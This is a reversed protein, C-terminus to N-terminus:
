RLESDARRHWACHYDLDNTQRAITSQAAQSPYAMSTPTGLGLHLRLSVTAEFLVFITFDFM